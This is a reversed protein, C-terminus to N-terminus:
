RARREGDGFALADPHRDAQRRGHQAGPWLSVPPSPAGEHLGTADARGDIPDAHGSPGRRRNGMRDMKAVQPQPGNTSLRM